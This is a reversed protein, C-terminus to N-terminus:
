KAELTTPINYGQHIFTKLQCKPIMVNQQESPVDKAKNKRCYDYLTGYKVGLADPSEVFETLTWNVGTSPNIQNKYQSHWNNVADQIQKRETKGRKRPASRQQKTVNNPKKTVKKRNSSPKSPAM